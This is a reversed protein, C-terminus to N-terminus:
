RFNSLHPFLHLVSLEPNLYCKSAPPWGRITRMKGIIKKHATDGAPVKQLIEIEFNESNRNQFM